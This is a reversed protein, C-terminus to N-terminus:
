WNRFGAERSIPSRNANCDPAAPISISASSAGQSIALDKSSSSATAEIFDAILSARSFIACVASFLNKSTSMRSSITNQRALPRALSASILPM